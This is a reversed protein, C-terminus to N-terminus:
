LACEVFPRIRHITKASLVRKEVLEELQGVAGSEERYRLIKDAQGASLGPVATVFHNERDAWRAISKVLTELAIELGSHEFTQKIAQIRM